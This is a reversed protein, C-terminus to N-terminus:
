IWRGELPSGGSSSTLTAMVLQLGSHLTDMRTPSLFTSGRIRSCCAFVPPTDAAVPRGSPPSEVFVLRISMLPLIPWFFSCSLMMAERVLRTFPLQSPAARGILTWTPTLESSGGSVKQNIGTPLSGSPSPISLFPILFPRM